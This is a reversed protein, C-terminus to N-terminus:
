ADEAPPSHKPAFSIPIRTYPREQESCVLSDATLTTELPHSGNGGSTTTLTLYSSLLCPEMVRLGLGYRTVAPGNREAKLNHTNGASRPSQLVHVDMYQHSTPDYRHIHDAFALHLGAAVPALVLYHVMLLHM